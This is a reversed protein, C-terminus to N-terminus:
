CVFGGWGEGCWRGLLVLLQMLGLAALGAILDDAMVGVAGPLREAWRVPGPKVVDFFRFAAFAALLQSSSQFNVGLLAISMGAWEDLVIWGPDASARGRLSYHVVCVGVATVVLTIWLHLVVGGLV